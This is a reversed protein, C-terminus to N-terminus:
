ITIGGVVETKGVIIQDGNHLHYDQVTKELDLVIPNTKKAKKVVVRTLEINLLDEVKKKITLISDGKKINPIEYDTDNLYYKIFLTKESM